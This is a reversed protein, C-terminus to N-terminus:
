MPLALERNGGYCGGEEITVVVVETIGQTVTPIILMTLCNILLYIIFIFLSSLIINVLPYHPQLNENYYFLLM